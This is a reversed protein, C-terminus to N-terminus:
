ENEHKRKINSNSSALGGCEVEKNHKKVCYIYENQPEDAYIM